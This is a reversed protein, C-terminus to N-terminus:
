TCPVYDALAATKVFALHQSLSVLLVVSIFLGGDSSGKRVLTPGHVGQRLMVSRTEGYDM